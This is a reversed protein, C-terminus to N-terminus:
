NLGGIVTMKPFVSPSRQIADTIVKHEPAVGELAHGVGVHNNASSHGCDKKCISLSDNSGPTARYYKIAEMPSVEPKGNRRNVKNHMEVTWNFLADNNNHIPPPFKEFNETFHARCDLCFFHEKLIQIAWLVHSVDEKTKAYAANRHLSSWEGPGEKHINHPQM